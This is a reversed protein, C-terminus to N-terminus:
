YARPVRGDAGVKKEDLPVPREPTIISISATAYPEFCTGTITVTSGAEYSSADTSASAPVGTCAGPPTPAGAAPPALVVAPAAACTMALLLGAGLRVTAQGRRVFMPVGEVRCFPGTM